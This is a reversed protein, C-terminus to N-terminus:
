TYVLLTIYTQSTRYMALRQQYKLNQVGNNRELLELLVVAVDAAAAPGADAADAPGADANAPWVHCAHM